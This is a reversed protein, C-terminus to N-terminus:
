SQKTKGQWRYRPWRVSFFIMVLVLPWGVVFLFIDLLPNHLRYLLYVLIAKCLYVVIWMLSMEQWVRFYVPSGYINLTKLQPRAQEALTRIVPEGRLSYFLFVVAVTLAGNLSLFVDERQVPLLAFHYLFLYHCLGSLLIMLVIALTAQRNKSQLALFAAWVASALLATGIGILYLVGYYLALPIIINLLAARSHLYHLFTFPTNQSM